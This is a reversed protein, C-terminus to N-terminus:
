IIRHFPTNMYKKTRCLTADKYDLVDTVLQQVLTDPAEIDYVCVQLFELRIM